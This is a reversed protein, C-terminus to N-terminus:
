RNYWCIYPFNKVQEWSITDDWVSLVTENEGNHFYGQGDYNGIGGCDILDSFENVTYVDAEPIEQRVQSIPKIIKKM